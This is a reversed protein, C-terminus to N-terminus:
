ADSWDIESSEPSWHQWSGPAPNMPDDIEYPIGAPIDEELALVVDTAPDTGGRHEAGGVIRMGALIPPWVPRHLVGRVFSANAYRIITIKWPKIKM